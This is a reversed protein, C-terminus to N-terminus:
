ADCDTKIVLGKINPIQKKVANLAALGTISLIEGKIKDAKANYETKKKFNMIILLM